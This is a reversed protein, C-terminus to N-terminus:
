KILKIVESGALLFAGSVYEESDEKDVDGPDRSVGQGWCVKGDEDVASYLAVWSKEIIPFFKEKELYGNNIGWALAYTFFATGSSEPNPFKEPNYLDTRWYGDKGQIQSIAEALQYFLEAYRHYSPDEPPLYQLIRPISAFAWGNGRSWFENDLKAQEDRYFLHVDPNYLDNVVNWFIWNGYTSYINDGTAETMMIYAPIGVYLADIYDYGQKSAPERNKVRNDMFSRADEIKNENKDLFYLEIYTQTCTLRNAPFTWETGTRWGHKAGWQEAQNLLSSDKSVHYFAMLGTYYTGRIWNRDNNMWSNSIFYDNVLNMKALINEPKFEEGSYHSDQCLNTTNILLVSIGFLYQILTTVM